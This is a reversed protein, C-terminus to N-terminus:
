RISKTRRDAGSRGDHGRTRRGRLSRSGAELDSPHRRRASASPSRLDDRPINVKLVGDKFDGKKGLTTMVGAYDPPLDQAATPTAPILAAVLAAGTLVQKLMTLRM